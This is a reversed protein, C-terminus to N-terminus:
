SYRALFDKDKSAFWDDLWKRVSKHSDFHHETPAHGKSSFLHYDTLWTEHTLPIPYCKGTLHAVHTVYAIAREWPPSDRLRTEAPIGAKKKAWLVTWNSNIITVTCRGNWKTGVAWLVRCGTSGVERVADDETRLSWAKVLIDITPRSWGVIEQSQSKWFLDIEWGWDRDSASVVEEETQLALNRKHEHTAGDAQRETWPSGM